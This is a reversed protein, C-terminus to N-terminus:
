DDQPQEALVGLTELSNRKQSLASMAM